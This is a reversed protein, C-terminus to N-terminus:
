IGVGHRGERLAAVLASGTGSMVDLVTGRMDSFLRIFQGVLSEPFKAPHFVEDAKRPPSKPMIWLPAQFNTAARTDTTKWVVYEVPEHTREFFLCYCCRREQEFLGIREDRLRLHQRGLLAVAWPVPFVTDGTPWDVVVGAYKGPKLIQGITRFSETISAIREDLTAPTLASWNVFVFDANADDALVETHIVTRSGVDLKTAYEQFGVLVTRSIAGDPWREKTFFQITQNLLSPWDEFRFFSKQFKMWDRYVLDNMRNPPGSGKKEPEDAQFNHFLSDQM